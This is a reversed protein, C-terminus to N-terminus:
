GFSVFGDRELAVLMDRVRRAVAPFAPEGTWADTATGAYFANFLATVASVDSSSTRHPDVAWALVGQLPSQLRARSGNFKPLVKMFVAQDFAAEFGMMESLDNNFLYQCIEDFVRYGFHMRNQRLVGNLAELDALIRPHKAVIDGIETKDILAFRGERTFAALLSRMESETLMPHDSAVSAKVYDSFNVDTLEITFARDLVKPSFAHTTEDMNVTGIIYLNPPLRLEHPPVDDDLTNPYTLRLPERTWGERDRGSEIVSLLDAFYYEVHALNMEDFIVFWAYGDKAEYSEQARLLFRLFETWEYTQTLPNYYGLLSTSDRWDPRVSLFLHKTSLGETDAAPQTTVAPSPLMEAFGTAIKSKGTGSIGSLVVFGKTQLSTYFAAVQADTYHLGTAFFQNRIASKADLVSGTSVGPTNPARHSAVGTGVQMYAPQPLIRGVASSLADLLAPQHESARWSRTKVGSALRTIGEHHPTRFEELIAGLHTTSDADIWFGPFYKYNQKVRAHDVSQFTPSNLDGLVSIGGGKHSVITVTHSEVVFMVRGNAVRFLAWSNPNARHATEIDDALHALLSHDLDSVDRKVDPRGGDGEGSGQEQLEESQDNMPLESM